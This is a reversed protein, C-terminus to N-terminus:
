PRILDLQERIVGPRRTEPVVTWSDVVFKLQEELLERGIVLVSEIPCADLSSTFRRYQAFTFMLSDEPFVEGSKSVWHHFCMNSDTKDIIYAVAAEPLVREWRGGEKIVQGAREVEEILRLDDATLLGNITERERERKKGVVERNRAQEVATLDHELSLEGLDHLWLIRELLDFDFGILGPYRGSLWRATGICRLEHSFTDDFIEGRPYDDQIYRGVTKLREVVRRLDSPPSIGEIAVGLFPRVVSEKGTM